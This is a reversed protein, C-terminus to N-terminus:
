YALLIEGTEDIVMTGFWTPETETTADYEDISATLGEETTDEVELEYTRQFTETVIIKTM